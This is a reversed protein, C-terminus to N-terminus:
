VLEGGVREELFYPRRLKAADRMVGRLQTDDYGGRLLSLLDVNSENRLLCPKIKGDYTLRIKTCHACANAGMVVAEIRSGDDLLYVKRAQMIERHSVEVVRPAFESELDRIDYHEREFVIDPNIGEVKHLEILQLTCNYEHALALIDWFEDVNYNRLLTYNIKMQQFGLSSAVGIGRLVESLTDSNTISAYVDPKLSWISVNLRDLGAEKLAAAKGALLSGNTTMSLDEVGPIERIGRVIEVIHPSCLPEGGTLKVRSIQFEEVFLRVLHVLEGPSMETVGCDSGEHDCVFCKYNCRPTISVRLHQLPLPPIKRLGRSRKKKVETFHM